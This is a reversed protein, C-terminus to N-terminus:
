CWGFNSGRGTASQVTITGKMADLLRKVIALGLGSGGYQRYISRDVQEFRHFLRSQQEDNMGPGTDTVSVLLRVSEISIGETVVHLEVWGERTFKVANSLLNIIIQRLRTPDGV